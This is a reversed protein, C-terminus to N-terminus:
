QNFAAGGATAQQQEAAAALAARLRDESDRRAAAELMGKRWSSKQLVSAAGRWPAARKREVAMAVIALVVREVACVSDTDVHRESDGVLTCSTSFADAGGCGCPSERSESVRGESGLKRLAGKRWRGAQRRGGETGVRKAHWGKEAGDSKRRVLVDFAKVHQFEM